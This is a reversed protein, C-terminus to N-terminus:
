LFTQDNRNFLSSVKSLTELRNKKYSLIFYFTIPTYATIAIKFVIYPTLADKYLAGNSYLPEFYTIKSDSRDSIRKFILDGKETIYFFM